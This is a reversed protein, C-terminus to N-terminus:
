DEPPLPGIGPSRTTIVEGSEPVQFAAIRLGRTRPCTLSVTVPEGSPAEFGDPGYAMGFPGFTYTYGPKLTHSMEDTGGHREVRFAIVRGRAKLKNAAALIVAGPPATFEDGDPSPPTLLADMNQAAKAASHVELTTVTCDERL